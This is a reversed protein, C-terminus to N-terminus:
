KDKGTDPKRKGSELEIIQDFQDSIVGKSERVSAPSLKKQSQWRAM